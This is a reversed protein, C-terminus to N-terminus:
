SLAPDLDLAASYNAFADELRGLGVDIQALTDHYVAEMRRAEPNLRLPQTVTDAEELKGELVLARGKVNVAAFSAPYAIPFDFNLFMRDQGALLATITTETMHRSRHYSTTTGSADTVGIWIADASPRAPSLSGSASWDAIIVRDFGSM